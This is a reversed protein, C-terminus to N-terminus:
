FSAKLTVGGYRKYDRGYNAFVRAIFNDAEQLQSAYAKNTLNKVYLLLQWRNERGTL